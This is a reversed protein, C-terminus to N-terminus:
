KSINILYRVARILATQIVLIFEHGPHDSIFPVFYPEAVPKYYVAAILIGNDNTLLFKLFPLSRAIKYDLKINPRWTNSKDLLDKL